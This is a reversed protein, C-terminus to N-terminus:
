ASWEDNNFALAVDLKKFLAHILRHKEFLKAVARRHAIPVVYYESYDM